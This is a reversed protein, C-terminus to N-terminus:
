KLTNLLGPAHEEYHRMQCEDEIAHGISDCVNVAYNSGEKFSFVKDFTLKCAIAAASKTDIKSLFPYIDRFAVGNHGKHIRLVTQEIRATLLPLLTDISSIGYITASAYEQQELKISQDTLRKLGQRIQDRELNIQEDIQAHTPM